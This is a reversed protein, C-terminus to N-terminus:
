EKDLDCSGFEIVDEVTPADNALANTTNVNKRRESFSSSNKSNENASSAIVSISGNKGGNRQKTSVLNCRRRRLSPPTEKGFLRQGRSSFSQQM